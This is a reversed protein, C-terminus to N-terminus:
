KNKNGGPTDRQIPLHVPFPNYFFFFLPDLFIQLLLLALKPPHHYSFTKAIIIKKKNICCFIGTCPHVCCNPYMFYIYFIGDYLLGELVVTGTICTCVPFSFEVKKSFIHIHYGPVRTSNSVTCSAECVYM